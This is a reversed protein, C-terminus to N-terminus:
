DKDPENRPKNPMRVRFSDGRAVSTIWEDIDMNSMLEKGTKVDITRRTDELYNLTFVVKNNQTVNGEATVEYFDYEQRSFSTSHVSSISGVGTGYYRVQYQWLRWCGDEGKEAFVRTKDPLKYIGHQRLIEDLEM